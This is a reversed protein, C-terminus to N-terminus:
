NAKSWPILTRLNQKYTDWTINTGKKISEQSSRYGSKAKASTHARQAREVKGKKLECESRNWRTVRQEKHEMATCNEERIVNTKVL